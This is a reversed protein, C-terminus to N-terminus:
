EDGNEEEYDDLKPLPKHWRFNESWEYFQQISSGNEKLWKDADKNGATAYVIYAFTNVYGEEQMEIFYPAYYDWFFGHNKQINDKMSSCVASFQSAFLAPEGFKKLQKKDLLKAMSIAIIVEASQFNDEPINGDETETFLNAPLYITKDGKKKKKSHLDEMGFITVIRKHNAAARGSVPELVMFRSLALLAPVKKNQYLMVVGLANHSGPHDPNDLLAMKFCEVSESFKEMRSLTIGKNFHLMYFDPFYTLGTDYIAISENPRQLEDLANGYTVYVMMLDDHGRHLEIAKVCNEIAEEHKKLMLLSYAKEALALLNDNDAKLAEDYKAIAGNYNQKKHLAIGSRILQEAKDKDQPYLHFCFGLLLLCLIIKKIKM